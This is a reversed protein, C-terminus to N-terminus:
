LRFMYKYKYEKISLEKWWLDQVLSSVQLLHLIQFKGWPWWSLLRYEDTGNMKTIIYLVQQKKFFVWLTVMTNYVQCCIFYGNM